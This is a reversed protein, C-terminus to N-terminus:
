MMKCTGLRTDWVPNCSQSFGDLEPYVGNVKPYAQDMETGTQIDKTRTHYTDLCGNCEGVTKLCYGRPFQYMKDPIQSGAATLCAPKCTPYSFCEGGIGNGCPLLEAVPVNVGGVSTQVHQGITEIKPPPPPAPAVTATTAPVVATTRPPIASPPTNTIIKKETQTKYVLFAGAACLLLLVVMEDDGAM